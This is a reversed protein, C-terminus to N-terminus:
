NSNPNVVEDWAFNKEQFLHLCTDVVDEAYLSGRGKELEEFAAELGLGPRYPRHSTIAEVVDAVALIRAEPVIQKCTLGNPYGSGDCREHHQLVIDAIPWDFEVGKLIDYGVEPHSQIIGFESASLRGPRNLIEAPVNIKGIDHVLAALRLGEIRREGFGLEQAIAVALQVVRHQHGATYPDRKELTLSVAEITQLMTQKIREMSMEHAIHTRQSEIGYAVDGAMEQLLALESEDFVDQTVSFIGIVGFFKERFRLPLLLLASVGSNKAVEIQRATWDGQALDTLLITASGDFLGALADSHLNLNEMEELWLRMYEAHDGFQVQTVLKNNQVYAAWVFSYNGNEALVECVRQLVEEESTAHVMTRNGQSLTRLVRNTHELQQSAVVRKTIDRGYLNVYGAEKFPAFVFAYHREGVAYEHRASADNELAHQALPILLTYLEMGIAGSYELLEKSAPNEYLVRGATDIRIIPSPSEEPFRALNRIKEEAEQQESVDNFVTAFQDKRTQYAVIHFYRKLHSSYKVFNASKGSQAVRIYDNIWEEEIGPMVERVGRGIVDEAKLGTLREFAPNVELFRYDVAEGDNDYILEHVSMGSEMMEFLSRFRQESNILKEEAQKRLTIDSIFGEIFNEDGEVGVGREWVWRVSGDKHMIRYVFSFQRGADLADQIESWVLAQDNPHILEAYNIVRSNELEDRRYGTLMEVGNSVFEMNWPQRNERRYAMGPLNGFLTDLRRESQRIKEEKEFRDTVDTLSGILEVPEGAPNLRPSVRGEIWRIDGRKHRMRCTFSIHQTTSAAQLIEQEVRKLDYDDVIPKWNEKPGLVEEGKYGLLREAEPAIYTIELEPLHLVVVVDPITTVIQDLFRRSERLARKEAELETVKGMLKSILAKRHLRNEFNLHDPNADFPPPKHDKESEIVDHLKNHFAQQDGDKLIFGSAGVLRSLAEDEPELFTASYFVVPISQLDDDARVAQCLSFGDMNPMLVDSIILDPHAVHAISLAQEGDEAQEVEYGDAMLGAAVAKRVIANDEALLIRM